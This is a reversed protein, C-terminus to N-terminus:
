CCGLAYRPVGGGGLLISSRMGSSVAVWSAVSLGWSMKGPYCDQGCSVPVFGREDKKACTCTIQWRHTSSHTLTSQSHVQAHTIMFNINIVKNALVHLWINYWDRYQCAVDLLHRANHSVLVPAHM